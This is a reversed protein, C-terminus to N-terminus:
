TDAGAQNSCTGHNAEKMATVKAEDGGTRPVWGSFSTEEPTSTLSVGGGAEQLTEKVIALGMGHGELRTTFGAHFIREQLEQPIMPGNNSVTFAFARIDETLTLTLQPSPTDRLAEMANDMLNSLVRCMAWGPMPLEKWASHINLRVAIGRERCSAMKVRLLANIAPIATKMVTSVATIDGYVREMYASAEDYEKMAMLSYVVQLHNLFDHRQARLTHNLAETAQNAADMDELQGVMKVTHIAEQLDSLVGWLALAAGIAILFRMLALDTQRGPLIMLYVAIGLILLFEMANIIVAFRSAKRVRFGVERRM